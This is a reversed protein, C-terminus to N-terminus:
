HPGQHLETRCSIESLTSAYVVITTMYCCVQSPVPTLGSMEFESVGRDFDGCTHNAAQLLM